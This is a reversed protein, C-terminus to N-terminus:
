VRPGRENTLNWLWDGEAAEEEAVEAPYNPTSTSPSSPSPAHTPLTFSLLPLSSLQALQCLFFTKMGCCPQRRNGVRRGSVDLVIRIVDCKWSTKWLCFLLYCMLTFFFFYCLLFFSGLPSNGQFNFIFYYILSHLFSFFDIQLKCSRITEPPYSCVHNERFDWGFCM